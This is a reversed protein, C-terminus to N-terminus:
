LQIGLSKLDLAQKEVRKVVERAFGESLYALGSVVGFGLLDDDFWDKADRYNSVNVSTEIVLLYEIIDKLNQDCVARWLRVTPENERAVTSMPMHIFFGRRRIRNLKLARRRLAKKEEASKIRTVM